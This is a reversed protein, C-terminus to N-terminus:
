AVPILKNRYVFTSVAQDTAGSTQNNGDLDSANVVGGLSSSVAPSGSISLSGGDTPELEVGIQYVGAQASPVSIDGSGVDGCGSYGTLVREQQTYLAPGEVFFVLTVDQPTGVCIYLNDTTFSLTAGGQSGGASEVWGITSGFAVTALLVFAVIRRTSVFRKVPDEEKM